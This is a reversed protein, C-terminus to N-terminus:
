INLFLLVDGLIYISFYLTRNSFKSKCFLVNQEPKIWCFSIEKIQKNIKRKLSLSQSTEAVNMVNVKVEYIFISCVLNKVVTNRNTVVGVCVRMSVNQSTKNEM